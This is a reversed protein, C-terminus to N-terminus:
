RRGMSEVLVLPSLDFPYPTLPLLFYLILVSLSSLSIDFALALSLPRDSFFFFFLFFLSRSSNHLLQKLDFSAVSWLPPERERMQRDTQTIIYM